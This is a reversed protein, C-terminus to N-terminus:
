HVTVPSITLNNHVVSKGKYKTIIVRDEPALKRDARGVGSSTDRMAQNAIQRHTRELARGHQSAGTMLRYAISPCNELDTPDNGAHMRGGPDTDGSTGLYPKISASDTSNIQTLKILPRNQARAPAQQHENAGIVQKDLAFDRVSGSPAHSYDPKTYAMRTQQGIRQQHSLLILQQALLQNFVALKQQKNLQQQSKPDMHEGVLFNSTTRHQQDHQQQQNHKSKASLEGGVLWHSCKLDSCASKPGASLDSSSPAFM